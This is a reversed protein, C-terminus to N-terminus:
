PSKDPTFYDSAALDYSALNLAPPECVDWVRWVHWATLAWVLQSDSVRHFHGLAYSLSFALLSRAFITNAAMHLCIERCLHRLSYHWLGHVICALSKAAWALFGLTLGIHSHKRPMWRQHFINWSISASPARKIVKLFGFRRFETRM